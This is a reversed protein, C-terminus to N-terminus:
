LIDQHHQLFCKLTRNEADIEEAAPSVTFLSDDASAESGRENEIITNQCVICTTMIIHLDERKWFRAPDKILLAHSCYVLANNLMKRHENKCKLLIYKKELLSAIFNNSCANGM